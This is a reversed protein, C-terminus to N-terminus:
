ARSFAQRGSVQHPLPPPPPPPSACKAGRLKSAFHCSFRELADPRKGEMVRTDRRRGGGDLLNWEERAGGCRLFLISGKLSPLGQGLSSAGWGGGKRALLKGLRGRGRRWSKRAACTYAGHQGCPQTILESCYRCILYILASLFQYRGTMM